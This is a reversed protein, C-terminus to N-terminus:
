NLRCSGQGSVGDMQCTSTRTGPLRPTGTLPTGIAAATDASLCASAPASNPTENNYLRVLSENAYAKLESLCSNELANKRYNNYAPLAIAALIAIIAVVIMLEILTFGHVSRPM